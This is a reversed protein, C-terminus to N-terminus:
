RFSKPVNEGVVQILRCFINNNRMKCIYLVCFVKLEILKHQQESSKRYSLYRGISKVCYNILLKDHCHTYVKCRLINNRIIFLFISLSRKYSCNCNM